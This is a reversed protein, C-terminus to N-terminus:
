SRISFRVAGTVRHGDAAVVDYRVAHPGAALAPLRASLERLLGPGGDITLDTSASGVVLAIRSFRREVGSSFRLVIREPAGDLVAGDRPIASVLKAHAFAARSALLIAGLGLGLRRRALMIAPAPAVSVGDEDIGM